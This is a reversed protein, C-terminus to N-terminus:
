RLNIQNCSIKKTFYSKMAFYFTILAVIRYVVIGVSFSNSHGKSNSVSFINDIVKQVILYEFIGVSGFYVISIIVATAISFYDTVKNVFALAFVMIFAFALGSHVSATVITHFKSGKAAYEYGVTM